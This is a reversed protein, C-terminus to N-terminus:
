ELAGPCTCYMIAPPGFCQREGDLDIISPRSGEFIIARSRLKPKNRRDETCNRALEQAAYHLGLDHQATKDGQRAARIFWKVAQISTYSQEVGRGNFFCFASIASPPRANRSPPPTIGNSLWDFNQPM